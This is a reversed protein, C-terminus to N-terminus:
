KLGAEGTNPPLIGSPAAPVVTPVVPPPAATPVSAQTPSEGACTIQVSGTAAADGAKATIVATGPQQPFSTIVATATGGNTPATPAISGLSTTFSVLTTNAVANGFKDTVKALVSATSGCTISSPIITLAILAPPGAVSCTVGIAATAIAGGSSVTVLLTGNLGIPAPITAIATGGSTAVTFAPNGNNASFLVLTGDPVAVGANTVTATITVSGGCVLDTASVGLSIDGVSSSGSPFVNVSSVATPSRSSGPL